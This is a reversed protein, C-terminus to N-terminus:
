GRAAEQSAGARLYRAVRDFFMGYLYRHHAEEDMDRSLVLADHTDLAMMAPRTIWPLHGRPASFDYIPEVFTWGVEYCFAWWIGFDYDDSGGLRRYVDLQASFGFRAGSAWAWLGDITRLDTRPFAFIHEIRLAQPVRKGPAVQSAVLLMVRQTEDHAAQWSGAALLDRLLAYDVGVESAQSDPGPGAPAQRTLAQELEPRRSVIEQVRTFAGDLQAPVPALALQARQITDQDPFLRPDPSRTAQLDRRMREVGASLRDVAATDFALGLREAPARLQALRAVMRGLDGGAGHVHHVRLGIQPEAGFEALKPGAASAAEQAERLRLLAVWLWARAALPPDGPAAACRAVFGDLPASVSDILAPLEDYVTARGQPSDADKNM